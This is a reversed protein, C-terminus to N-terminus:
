CDDERSDREAETDEFTCGPDAFAACYDVCGHYTGSAFFLYKACLEKVGGTGNKVQWCQKNENEGTTSKAIAQAGKMCKCHRISYAANTFSLLSSILLIFKM